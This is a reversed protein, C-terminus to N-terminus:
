FVRRLLLYGGLFALLVPLMASFVPNIGYVIGMHAFLQNVIHFGIGLLSGVLVRQGINVSRLPGFVFPVALFVMVATVLPGMLKGWLSQEYVSADLGNTQLYRMYQYTDWVSLTDAKVTVVGLLDPSLQTRWPLHEYRESRVHDAGIESSVVDQLVWEGHRYIASGAILQRTLTYNEGREFIYVQGLREGPLINRINVFSDGDRAWLENMGQLTLRDSMAVSRYTQAYRETRPAIVEAIVITIVVFVLGIKMVSIVIDRVSVGAARIAVLESSGALIGLGITTGLLVSFPILQNILKPMTMLAYFFAEKTGYNGKGIRESEETFAFFTFLALLVSIVLLTSVAVTRGIYRDLIPLSRM